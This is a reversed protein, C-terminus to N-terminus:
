EGGVEKPAADAAPDTSPPPTGVPASFEAELLKRAFRSNTKKTRERKDCLVNVDFLSVTSCLSLKEPRSLSFTRYTDVRVVHGM